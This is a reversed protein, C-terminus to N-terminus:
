ARRKRASSGTYTRTTAEGIAMVGLLSLFLGVALTVLLIQLFRAFLGVLAVNVYQRRSLDLVPPAGHDPLRVAAAPTDAVLTRVEEWSDLTGAARVDGPVRTLVFGGGIIVFLGLIM